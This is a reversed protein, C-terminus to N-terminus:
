GYDQKNNLNNIGRQNHRVINHALLLIFFLIFLLVKKELEADLGYVRIGDSRYVAADVTSNVIEDM